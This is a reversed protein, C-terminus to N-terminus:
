LFGAQPNTNVNRLIIDLHWLDCLMCCVECSNRRFTRDWLQVLSLTNIIKKTSAMYETQWIMGDKGMWPKSNVVGAQAGSRATWCSTNLLSRARSPIPRPTKSQLTPRTAFSRGRGQRPLTRAARAGARLVFYNWTKDKRLRKKRTVDNRKKKTERNNKKNEADITTKKNGPERRERERKTRESQQPATLSPNKRIKTM